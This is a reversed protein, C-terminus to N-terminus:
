VYKTLNMIKWKINNIKTKCLLLLYCYNHIKIHDSIFSQTFYLDRVEQRHFSISASSTVNTAITNTEKTSVTDM